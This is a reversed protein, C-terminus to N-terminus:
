NVKGAFFAFTAASTISIALGILSNIITGRAKSTKEPEGQSTLYQIGGYIIFGVAMLAGVRLLIEIVAAVVLYIDNIGNLKPSCLKAKPDAAELYKYWKPFGFFDGGLCPAGFYQLLSIKIM